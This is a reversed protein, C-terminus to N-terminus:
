SKLFEYPLNIINYYQIPNDTYYGQLTLDANDENIIIQRKFKQDLVKKILVYAISPQPFCGIPKVILIQNNTFPKFGKESYFISEEYNNDAKEISIIKPECSLKDYVRNSNYNSKLWSSLEKSEIQYLLFVNGM